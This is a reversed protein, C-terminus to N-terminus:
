DDSDDTELLSLEGGMEMVLGTRIIVEDTEDDHEITFGEPLVYSLYERLDNFGVPGHIVDASVIMEGREAIRDYAPYENTM